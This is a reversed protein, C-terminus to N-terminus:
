KPNFEEMRKDTFGFYHLIASIIRKSAKGDGYPNVSKQMRKYENPDSLLLETEKFIVDADIGVLKVTGAEIAEPRETKERLVLVPKGLSPAEEQVGGSDTLIINSIKMLHVFPEYDMPEVIFVNPINSLIGRVTRSVVPNKHIPLIIQADKLNNEAIRKVASCIAELPRGFAERRHTTVLIIKKNALVKFDFKSLDFNRKATFILADIVSNGTCYINNKPIKESLLHSVSTHTPPFHLDSVISILQRNVEEPYPRMKDFTRLGAEVHALPIKNYFACLGAAFASSTDGQVLIMDPHERLLVFELANLTKSVIQSLTQSPEMIDLDYDPKIDFIKFVSSLMEKHQGTSVVVPLLIDQHRKLELIIPAMKIAEPRTGFVFMIRKKNM